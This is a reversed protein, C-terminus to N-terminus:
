PRCNEDSIIDKALIDRLDIWSNFYPIMQLEFRQKDKNYNCILCEACSKKCNNRISNITQGHIQGNERPHEM